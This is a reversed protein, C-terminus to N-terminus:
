GGGNEQWSQKRRFGIGDEVLHLAYSLGATLGVMGALRWGLLLLLASVVVIAVPIRYSHGMLRHLAYPQIRGASAPLVIEAVMDPAVSAIVGTAIFLSFSGIYGGLFSPLFSCCIGTFPSPSTATVQDALKTLLGVCAGTLAHEYIRV